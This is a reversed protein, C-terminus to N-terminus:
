RELWRRLPYQLIGAPFCIENTTPNYYANVTQPTMYWEDRDVPKGAKSLMYDLYFSTARKMNEYYSDKKDINLATYDRWKDPYGIKVYFTSLKELAQTKTSDSMWEQAQIREALATQLNKVLQVMRAKSEAPFYKQVYMQGVAEGLVGSVAGVARKWRPQMEQIGKMIRSYFDFEEAYM